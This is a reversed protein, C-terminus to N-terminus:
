NLLVSDTYSVEYDILTLNENLNYEKIIINM